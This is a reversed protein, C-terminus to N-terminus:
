SETIVINSLLTPDRVTKFSISQTMAAQGSVPAKNSVYTVAPLNFNLTNTGDTLTFSVSTQTGNLFKNFLVNDAIYATVTGTVKSMGPTYAVPTATGLVELAAAGNDISLDIATFTAIVSGGEMITGGLHTFPVEVVAATPSASLPATTATQNMGNITAALTVLGKVPCKISLKDVFCGTSVKGTTTDAHWEELTLTQWTTGTKLVKSTFTGFLATQLLPAYNLHSLNADISGTVKAMGPIINREMRDGFISTDEYFDRALEVDYKTVPIVLVTPTANTVGNVTEVSLGIRTESGTQFRPTTM